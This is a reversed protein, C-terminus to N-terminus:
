KVEVLEWIVIMRNLTTWVPWCTMLTVEAKWNDRRLISTDGPRVVKKERIKYTYKKQNYYIIVDDNFVVHDLLAFVDNYNWELWPFNSSHGFIFSNWIEGPRASWPYRVIWNVLEEMFIDELEWVNRVKRDSVDILPINKWIKPIIVRNEFPALNVDININQNLLSWFREISHINSNSNNNIIDRSSWINRKLEEKKVLIDENIEEKKINKEIRNSAISEYLSNKSQEMREPYIYSEALQIYASYNTTFLLVLFIFSTTIAYKFIFNFFNLFKNKINSTDINKSVKQEEELIDLIDYSKDINEYKIELINNNENNDEYNEINNSNNLIDDPNNLTDNSDNNLDSLIDDIDINNLIDNTNKNKM